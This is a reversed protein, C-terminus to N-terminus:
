NPPARRAVDMRTRYLMLSWGSCVSTWIQLNGNSAIGSSDPQRSTRFYESIFALFNAGRLTPHESCFFIKRFVIDTGTCTTNDNTARSGDALPVKSERFSYLSALGQFPARHMSPRCFVFLIQLTDNYYYQLQQENYVVPLTCSWCM